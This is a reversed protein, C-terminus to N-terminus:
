GEVTNGVQWKLLKCHGTELCQEINQLFGPYLVGLDFDGCGFFGLVSHTGFRYHVHQHHGGFAFARALVLVEGRQVLVTGSTSASDPDELVGALSSQPGDKLKKLRESKHLSKKRKESNGRLIV